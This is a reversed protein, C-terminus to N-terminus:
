LSKSSYASHGLFHLKGKRGTWIISKNDMGQTRTHKCTALSHWGLTPGTKAPAKFNSQTYNRQTICRRDRCGEARCRNCVAFGPSFCVCTSHSLFVSFRFNIFVSACSFLLSKLLCVCMHKWMWMGGSWLIWERTDQHVSVLRDTEVM